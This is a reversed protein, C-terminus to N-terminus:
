NSSRLNPENPKIFIYKEFAEKAKEDDGLGGYMYGLKNLVQVNNPYMKHLKEYYLLQNKKNGLLREYIPLLLYFVEKQESYESFMKEIEIKTQKTKEEDVKSYDDLVLKIIRKEYSTWKNNGSKLKNTLEKKFRQKWLGM